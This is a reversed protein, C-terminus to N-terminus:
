LMSYDGNLLFRFSNIDFRASAANDSEIYGIFYFRSTMRFERLEARMRCVCM